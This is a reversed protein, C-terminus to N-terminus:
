SVTIKFVSHATSNDTGFTITFTGATCQYTGGLDFLCLVPSTAAVGSSAILPAYAATTETLTTWQPSSDAQSSVYEINTTGAVTVTNQAHAAGDFAAGLATYNTGTIETNTTSIVDSTYTGAASALQCRWYGAYGALTKWNAVTYTAQTGTLIEIGSIWM